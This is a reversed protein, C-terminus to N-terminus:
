RGRTTRPPSTPQFHLKKTDLQGIVLPGYYVELHQERDEVEVLGIVEKTLLASVFMRQGKFRISGHHSVPRLPAGNPYALGPMKTPYLRESGVYLSAPTAYGLAEHPRQDNYEQQFRLFALQQRRLNREPPSATEQKLTQHM